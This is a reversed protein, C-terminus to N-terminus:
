SAFSHVCLRCTSGFGTQQFVYIGLGFATLGSGITSILQGSWLLLFKKFFGESDAMTTEM